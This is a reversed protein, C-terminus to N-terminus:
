NNCNTLSIEYVRAACGDDYYNSRARIFTFGLSEYLHIAAPNDARVELLIRRINKKLAHDFMYQLLKKGIGQKRFDPDVGVDIIEIEDLITLFYIFGAFKESLEAIFVTAPENKFIDSVKKETINKKPFIGQYLPVFELIDRVGIQRIKIM